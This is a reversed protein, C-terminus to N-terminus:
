GSEFILLVPKVDLFDHFQEHGKNVKVLRGDIDVLSQYRFLQELVVCEILDEEINFDCCLPNFDVNCTGCIVLPILVLGM